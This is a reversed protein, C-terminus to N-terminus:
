ISIGHNVIQVVNVNPKYFGIQVAFLFPIKEAALSTITLWVLNVSQVRKTHANKIYM